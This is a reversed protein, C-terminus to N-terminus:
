KKLPKRHKKVDDLFSLPTLRYEWLTNEARHCKKKSFFDGFHGGEIKQLKKLLISTSFDWLTGRETKEANHSKKENKEYFPGWNVLVKVNQVGKAIKIRLYPASKPRERSTQRQIVLFM